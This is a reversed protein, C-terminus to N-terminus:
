GDDKVGLKPRRIIDRVGGGDRGMGVPVTPVIVILVVNSSESM